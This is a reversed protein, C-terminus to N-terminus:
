NAVTALKSAFSCPRPPTNASLVAGAKPQMLRAERRGWKYDVGGKRVNPRTIKVKM